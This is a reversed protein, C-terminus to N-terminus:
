QRIESYSEPWRFFKTKALAKTILIAEVLTFVLLLAGVVWLEEFLSQYSYLILNVELMLLGPYLVNLIHIRKERYNLMKTKPRIKFFIFGLEILVPIWDLSHIFDFVPNGTLPLEGAFIGVLFLGLPFVSIVVLVSVIYYIDARKSSLM